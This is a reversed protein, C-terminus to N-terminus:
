DFPRELEPLNRVSRGAMNAVYYRLGVFSPSHVKIGNGHIEKNKPWHMPVINVFRRSMLNSRRLSKLAVRHM